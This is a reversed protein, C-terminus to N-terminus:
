GEIGVGRTRIDESGGARPDVRRCFDDEIAERPELEVAFQAIEVGQELRLKGGIISALYIEGIARIGQGRALVAREAVSDCVQEVVDGEIDQERM